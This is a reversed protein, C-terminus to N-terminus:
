RPFVTYPREAIKRLAEMQGPAPPLTDAYGWVRGLSRYKGEALNHFPLLEVRRLGLGSLFATTERMLEETDNFDPIVPIRIGIEAGSCVLFALNEKIRGLDAGVADKLAGIRPHKFDVLFLDTWPVLEALTEKPIHLASEVATSIGEDKCARFLSLLFDKRLLPEGGSCTVGGGSADYFDRDRLVAQLVEGTTMLEAAM